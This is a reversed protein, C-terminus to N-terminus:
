IYDMKEAITKCFFYEVIPGLNHTMQVYRAFTARSYDKSCILCDDFSPLGKFTSLLRRVITIRQFYEVIMLCNYDKSYIRCDAYLQLGKFMNLLPRVITNRQVLEVATARNPTVHIYEVITLFNNM